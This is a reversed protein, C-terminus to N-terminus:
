LSKQSMRQVALDEIRLAPEPTSVRYLPPLDEIALGAEQKHAATVKVLRFSKLLAPLSQFRSLPVAALYNAYVGPQRANTNSALMDSRFDIGGSFYRRTIVELYVELKSSTEETLNYEGNRLSEMYARYVREKGSGAACDKLLRACQDASLGGCQKKYWRALSLARYVSRLDAYAPDYNVKMELLPLILERMLEVGYAQVAALRASVAAPKKGIYDSELRIHLIGQGIELSTATQHFSMEGPIIWIRNIVPIQDAIGLSEAKAYLRQWYRKGADSLRPNTLMGADKKLRLDGELLIRGVLTNQLRQDIISNPQHPNLNVWFVESPLALGTLFYTIFKQTADRIDFLAAAADTEAARIGLVISGGPGAASVSVVDIGEARAAVAGWLSFVSYAILAFARLFYTKM